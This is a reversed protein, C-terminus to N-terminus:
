KLSAFYEGMAEYEADTYGAAHRKMITGQRAGSKFEQMLSVFSEKNIGALNPIKGLSKGGPGHCSFCTSAILRAHADAANAPGIAFAGAGLAFLLATKTM